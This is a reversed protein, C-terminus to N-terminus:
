GRRHVGLLLRQVPQLPVLEREERGAVLELAFGDTSVAACAPQIRLPCPEPGRRRDLVHERDFGFSQGAVNALSRAFSVAAALLVLSLAVEGIILAQGPGFRRHSLVPDRAGPAGGKIAPAIDSGMRIAPLLGFFVAAACSLAFTFALVRVDPVVQIPVYDAGRFVLVVLLRTGAAAVLLALAGGALALTLSETLSQRLLRGRSAGLALRVSREPRRAAGRALLLGALNACTILLVAASIGLLLRLTQSYDKQMRNVGSRGPTLEVRSNSLDRRQEDSLNSGDRSLLWSQLAVTLRAQREAASTDPPLRGMLYLWYQDPDDVLKRQPNLQRDASIPLWFGPPDPQLRDGYFEPAAVGVIAVPVGNLDVTSGVVSPDGNLTDKWYRFSVVSVPAAAASDDIPVITRGLAANVGLVEFYNGSVLRAAAPRAAGAGTRHVSVEANGSQFACLGDLVGTDRLHKYLEHSFVPFSGDPRTGVGSSRADGLMVLRGPDRVPLPKMLVADILTFIASNAGIGLALTIVAVATFGPSKRLQRTAFRVDQWVNDLWAAMVADLARERYTLPNGFRSRATQRAQEVSSGRAQEEDEILALHTDLEERLDDDLRSRRVVNWLRRLLSM